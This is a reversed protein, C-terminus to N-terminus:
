FNCNFNVSQVAPFNCYEDVFCLLFSIVCGFEVSGVEGGADIKVPEYCTIEYICLFHNQDPLVLRYSLGTPCAEAQRTCRELRTPCPPYSLGTPCAEAQRICHEHGTPCAKAQRIYRRSPPLVCLQPM